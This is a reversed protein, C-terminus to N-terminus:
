KFLLHSTTSVRPLDKIEEIILEPDELNLRLSITATKLRKSNALVYTLFEEEIIRDGYDRWEFIELQSSL